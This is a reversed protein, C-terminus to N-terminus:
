EEKMKELCKIFKEDDATDIVEYLSAIKPMAFKEDIIHKILDILPNYYGNKNLIFIPAHLQNLYKLTLIQFFEDMTGIGGPAVVFIDAHKEMLMKREAMTDVMITNDCDFISEFGKMFHPTIGMVYGGNEKVGAASEGMCGTSGAGYVLSYGKDSIINGLKRVEEKHVDDIRDSAGSYVCVFYKKSM